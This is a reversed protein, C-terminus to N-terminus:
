VGSRQDGLGAGLSYDAVKTVGASRGLRRDPQKRLQSIMGWGGEDGVSTEGARSRTWLPSQPKGTVFLNVLRTGM